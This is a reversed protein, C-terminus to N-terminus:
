DDRVSLASGEVSRKPLAGCSAGSPETSAKHEGCPALFPTPLTRGLVFGAVPVKPQWRDGLSMGVAQVHALALEVMHFSPSAIRRLHNFGKATSPNLEGCQHWWHREKAGLLKSCSVCRDGEAYGHVRRHLIGGACGDLVRQGHIAPM